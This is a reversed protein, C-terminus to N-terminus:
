LCKNSSIIENKVERELENQPEIEFITYNKVRKAIYKEDLMKIPKGDLIFHNAKFCWYHNIGLINKDLFFYYSFVDYNEKKIMSNGCVIKKNTEKSAINCFFRTLTTDYKYLRDIDYLILLKDKIMELVKSYNRAVYDFTIIECGELSCESKKNKIVITENPIIYKKLIEDKNDSFIALKIIKKDM